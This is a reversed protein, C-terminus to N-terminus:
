QTRPVNIIGIDPHAKRFEQMAEGMNKEFQARVVAQDAESMGKFLGPLMANGITTAVLFGAAFFDFLALPWINSLLGSAVLLVLCTGNLALTFWRRSIVYDKLFIKAKRITKGAGIIM